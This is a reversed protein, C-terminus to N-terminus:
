DPPESLVHVITESSTNRMQDLKKQAIDCYECIEAIIFIIILILQLLSSKYRLTTFNHIFAHILKQTVGKESFLGNVLM